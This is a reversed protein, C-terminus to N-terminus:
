MGEEMQTQLQMPEATAGDPTSDVAAAVNETHATCGESDTNNDIPDKPETASRENDCTVDHKEAHLPNDAMVSPISLPAVSSPNLHVPLAATKSVLHMRSM